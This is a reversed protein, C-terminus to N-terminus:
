RPSGTKANARLSSSAFTGAEGPLRGTSRWAAMLEGHERDDFLKPDRADALWAAFLWRDAADANGLGLEVVGRCLAYRARERAPRREFSSELERLEEAAAPLRGEALADRASVLSPGCGLLTFYLVSALRLLPHFPM